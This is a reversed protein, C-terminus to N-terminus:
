VSDIDAWEATPVLYSQSLKSFTSANLERNHFDASVTRAHSIRRAETIKNGASGLLSQRSRAVALNM